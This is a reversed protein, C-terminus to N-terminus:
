GSPNWKCLGSSTGECRARGTLGHCVMRCGSAYWTCESAASCAAASASTARYACDRLCSQASPYWVCDPTASCTATQKQSCDSLCVTQAQWLCGQTSGVCAAAATLAPCGTLPVSPSLTPAPPAPATPSRSPPTPATPSRSPPTPATPSRSPPTNPTTPSLSPSQAVAVLALASLM